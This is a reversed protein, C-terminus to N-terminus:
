IMKKRKGQQKGGKKGEVPATRTQASLRQLPPSRWGSPAEETFAGWRGGGRRRLMPERQWSWVAVEGEDESRDEQRDGGGGGGRRRRDRLRIFTTGTKEGPDM